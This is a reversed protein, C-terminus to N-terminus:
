SKNMFSFDFKGTIAFPSYYKAKFIVASSPEDDTQGIKLTKNLLVLM